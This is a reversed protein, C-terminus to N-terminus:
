ISVYFLFKITLNPQKTMENSKRLTKRLFCLYKEKKIINSQFTKHKM